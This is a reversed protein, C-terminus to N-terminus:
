TITKEWYYTYSTTKTKGTLTCTYMAFGGNGTKEYSIFWYKAYATNSSFSYTREATFDSIKESYVTTRTGTETSAYAVEQVGYVNHLYDYAKYYVETLCVAIPNYIILTKNAPAQAFTNGNGDFMKWSAYTGSKGSVAFSSGGLTGNATLNTPNTWSTTVTSTSYTGEFNITKDSDMTITGTTTGYTSHYISYSVTTGKPVIASKTEYSQENYTLTCTASAPNTVVTLTVKSNSLLRESFIM